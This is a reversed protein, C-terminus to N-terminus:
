PLGYLTLHRSIPLKGWGCDSFGNTITCPAGPFGCRGIQGPLRQDRVCSGNQWERAQTYNNGYPPWLSECNQLAISCELYYSM